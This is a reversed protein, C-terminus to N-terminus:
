LKVMEFTAWGIMALVIHKMIGSRHMIVCRRWLMCINFIEFDESGMVRKNLRSQETENLKESMENELM